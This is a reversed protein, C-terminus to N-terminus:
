NKYLRSCLLHLVESEKIKRVVVFNRWNKWINSNSLIETSVSTKQSSQSTLLLGFIAGCGTGLLSSYVGVQAASKEKPNILGIAVSSVITVVSFTISATAASRLIPNQIRRINELM